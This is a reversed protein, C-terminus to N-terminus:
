GAFLTHLEEDSLRCAFSCGVSWRGRGANLAYRVRAIRVPLDHHLMILLLQGAEVPADTLLAMGAATVDRVPARKATTADDTLLRYTAKEPGAHRTQPPAARRESAPAEFRPFHLTSIM